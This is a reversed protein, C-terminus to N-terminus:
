PTFRCARLNELNNDEVSDPSSRIIRRGCRGCSVVIVSAAKGTAPSMTYFEHTGSDIARIVDSVTWRSDAKNPNDGTGVAVIHEHANAPAHEVCVVRLRSRTVM